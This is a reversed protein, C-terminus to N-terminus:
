YPNPLLPEPAKASPGEGKAPAAKKPSAGSPSPSASPTLWVDVSAPAKEDLTLAEDQFGDAHVVVKATAGAMPRAVSRAEPALRAGDVVLYAQEPVVKFLVTPAAAVVPPPAPATTAAPRVEVQAATAMPPAPLVPPQMSRWIWFVCAGLAAAAIVGLASAMVYDVGSPTRTALEMAPRSANMNDFSPASRRVPPPSVSSPQVGSPTLQAEGPPPTERERDAVPYQSRRPPAPLGDSAANIRERRREMECAIRERVVAAVHSQTVIPGSKALWEELALRMQDMTPFRHLPQQAMARTLIRELEFPYGRVVRSPPAFAGKLLEQMVAHEGDGRFPQKGTTAEYLVCGLSFVDSRRDVAGGAAQEPAMYAIKGKLQGAQTTQHSTNLAKAVGFDTVKVNGDLSVLLNHPSVDRHVVELLKGADDTLNHAAHLGACADAVIRAAVRPDIPSVTTGGGKLVHALSDGNVWEMALYLVRQEEGLEDIECVNPHRVGSAIRAEDVLMREFEPDCALHPLITKIAVLKTFGRQGHLRAAWVRAMGGVAIPVLLEYRGLRGGRQLVDSAFSDRQEEIPEPAVPEAV